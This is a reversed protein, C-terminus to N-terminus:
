SIQLGELKWGGKWLEKCTIEGVREMLLALVCIKV